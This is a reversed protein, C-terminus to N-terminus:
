LHRLGRIVRTLLHVDQRPDLAPPPIWPMRLPEQVLYGLGGRKYHWHPLTSIM